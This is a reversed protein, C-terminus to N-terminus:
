SDKMGKIFFFSFSDFPLWPFATALMEDIFGSTIVIM